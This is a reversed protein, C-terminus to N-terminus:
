VSGQRAGCVTDCRDQACGARFTWRHGRGHAGGRVGQETQRWRRRRARQGTEHDGHGVAVGQRQPDIAALDLHPQPADVRGLLGLGQTASARCRARRGSVLGPGCLAVGGHVAEYVLGRYALKATLEEPALCVCELPCPGRWLDYSRMVWVGRRDFTLGAFAPSVLLLDLDSDVLWDGRVRSGFAWAATVSFPLCALWRRAQDLLAPLDQQPTATM